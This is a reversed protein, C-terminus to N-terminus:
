TSHLAIQLYRIAHRISQLKNTQSSLSVTAASTGIYGGIRRDDEDDMLVEDAAVPGGVAGIPAGVSLCTRAVNSTM